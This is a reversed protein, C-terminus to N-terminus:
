PSNIWVTLLISVNTVMDVTLKRSILRFLVLLLLSLCSSVDLCDGVLELGVVILVVGEQDDGWFFNVGVLSHINEIEKSERKFELFIIDDGLDVLQLHAKVLLSGVRDKRDIGVLVLDRVHIEATSSFDELCEDLLPEHRVGARVGGLLLLSTM